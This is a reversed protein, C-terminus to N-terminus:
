AFEINTLDIAVMLEDPLIQGNADCRYARRKTPVKIGDFEVLDDTYHKTAFGGPWM